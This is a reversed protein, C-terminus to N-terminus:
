FIRTLSLFGSLGYDKQGAKPVLSEWGLSTHVSLDYQPYQRSNFVDFSFYDTSTKDSVSNRGSGDENGDENLKGTRLTAGWGVGDMRQLIGGVSIIQSDQDAWHGIPRGRYRYGDEYIHHGYSINRTRPDGTWWYSTLDAYEAFVRLTSAGLKKWTEVGYQFMLCNPLFKDEDEGVLQGYIALPADLVRWRLDIGALQNGPEKSPDNNGTNAGYNDQSLFADVWTSFGEPRGDGGLQMMRFFGIELGDVITPRVEGRMGWLYPNAYDTLYPNGDKDIKLEGREKEMRGIFSHFSWPGIWSLWKTEFPEPVRRDISIAPIPRANTSLILSGDWGPGWWREVQGFSASWNGLRAAIYSSDLAIGEDERGKWDKEMVYFANLSLKAVFRDNMWSVSANTAFSSRPEPGFGRATVRDDALGITTFIPSWGSRSETSIKDDLLSHPLKGFADNRMSSLGGLDLPWTNQLGNLGGEDGLLRIEHRIFPDNPSLYPEAWVSACFVAVFPIFKSLRM